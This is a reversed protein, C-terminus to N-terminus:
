GTAIAFRSASELQDTRVAGGIDRGGLDDTRDGRIRRIGANVPASGGCNAYSITLTARAGNQFRYSPMIVVDAIGSPPAMLTFETDRALAGPPIELIHDAVQITDGTSARILKTYRMMGARPCQHWPPGSPPAQMLALTDEGEVGMATPADAAPTRPEEAARESRGCASMTSAIVALVTLCRWPIAHM